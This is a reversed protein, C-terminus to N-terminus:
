YLVFCDDDDHPTAMDPIPEGTENKTSFNEYDSVENNHKRNM